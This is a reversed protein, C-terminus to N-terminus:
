EGHCGGTRVREAIEAIRPGRGPPIRLNRALVLMTKGPVLLVVNDQIDDPVSDIRIRLGRRGVHEIVTVWYRQGSCGQNWEACAGVPFLARRKPM